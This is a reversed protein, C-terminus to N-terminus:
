DHQNGGLVQDIETAVEKGRKVSWVVTKDGQAIDGTVFVQPAAQYGTFPVEDHNLQLGLGAANAKQGVALIIKDAEIVLQSDIHRHKFTVKKGDAATPVYGDIITVGHAQTGLLEKQSAKFENFEEYVVDTVHKVDLRKLTTAVDMAVDGGGIVLVNDPLELQGHHMKARALFSVATEMYPNGEFLPLSKAERSGIALVVAQYNQKLQAMTIDEGITTNYKIEAGMNTIRKIEFDVIDTPLRYEPIGYTLYGGAKANKEYIDVAYGLELLTVATQLGSPGSGVIAVKMGNPKGKHLIDMQAQQEFDTVFRQIGGIDIPKDIGSRTCGLECYRETPCVRACIAGMANNERITEAAGKFNRFRVSRIFRAPDTKAPCMKSCPADHCLLCRAAEEMVTSLTYSPEAEKMYKM